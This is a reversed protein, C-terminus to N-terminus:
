FRSGDGRKKIKKVLELEEQATKVKGNLKANLVRRLIKQYHPGPMFGLSKLDHGGLSIATRNYTHFFNELNALASKDAASAKLLIIVEYSLPELLHFVSSPRLKPRSLKSLLKDRFLFFDMIRKEEGKRFVFKECVAQVQGAELGSLLGSLYVLWSDLHRHGDFKTKFWDVQDRCSRLFNETKRSLRLTPQIFDLGALKELAKLAKLPEKEKLMLVLEDRLRQPSVASLMKLKIAEGLHKLTRSEIKFDYREQFRIARLIRTPDDIFSLEHLIRLKKRAIDSKGQFMDLLQGFNDLNIAIVLTNITFDRRYLDDRISGRNVIPLSAPQPYFEKRATAVDIKLHPKVTVTATGFRKHSVLKANLKRALAGAFDIGEGEVAIDLDLNKVELILDRVFGGVLYARLGMHGATDRAAYILDLIEQPLQKLHKEM